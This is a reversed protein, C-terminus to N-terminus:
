AWRSRSLGEACAAVQAGRQGEVLPVRRQAEHADVPTQRDTKRAEEKVITTLVKSLGEYDSNLLLAHNKLLIAFSM